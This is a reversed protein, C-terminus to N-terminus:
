NEMIIILRSLYLFIAVMHGKDLKGLAIKYKEMQEEEREKDRVTPRTSTRMLEEMLDTIEDDTPAKVQIERGSRAQQVEQDSDTGSGDSQEAFRQRSSPTTLKPKSSSSRGKAPSEDFIGDSLKAIMQRKTNDPIDGHPYLRLMEIFQKVNPLKTGKTIILFEAIHNVTADLLIDGNSNKTQSLMNIMLNLSFRKEAPSQNDQLYVCVTAKNAETM